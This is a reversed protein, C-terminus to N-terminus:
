GADVALGGALRVGCGAALLGGDRRCTRGSRAVGPRDQGGQRRRSGRARVCVVGAGLLSWAVMADAHEVQGHLVLAIRDGKVVGLAALGGALHRSKEWLLSFTRAKGSGITIALADPTTRASRA